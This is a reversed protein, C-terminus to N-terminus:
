EENVTRFETKWAAEQVTQLNLKYSERERLLELFRGIRREVRLASVDGEMPSILSKVLKFPQQFLERVAVVFQQRWIEEYTQETSSTHANWWFSIQNPHGCKQLAFRYPDFGLTARGGGRRLKRLYYWHLRDATLFHRLKLAPEYRLRWGALVLAFCLETDEGRNLAKGKCGVLLSRFGDDLLKQWATKRLTLGAGFLRGRTWTIDGGEEPGQAGIAYGRGSLDFWWPKEGDFEPINHGGCAGVDPYQSMVASATSVWDPCVWNDDDIFSLIEYKAEALGRYRANILGLKPEHVVRLQDAKQDPWCDLAVQGTGDKSANDIVIVEWPFDDAVQQNALHELTKPLEQASNHCCIIVSIGLQM